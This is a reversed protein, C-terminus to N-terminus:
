DRRGFFRDFRAKATLAAQQLYASRAEPHELAYGMPGAARAPPPTTGAAGAAAPEDTRSDRATTEITARLAAAEKEASALRGRMRDQEQVASVLQREAAAVTWAERVSWGVASLAIVGAAVVMIKTTSMIGFITGAIAGGGSTALATAAIAAALGAPAAVSPQSGLAVALAAATSTVGRRALRERLKVLAREVRMRAADESVSWAAGIEAFPRSEFFRRVVVDRDTEPLEGILADLVPRLQEWETSDGASRTSAIMSHEHERVRRAREARVIDSAAFQASRFLWGGLAARGALARAKRALDAFVRQAADQAFHADGGVHRLAVSYVLDVHRQVLERFATEDGAEAYRRLLEADTTMM